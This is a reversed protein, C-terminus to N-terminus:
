NTLMVIQRPNERLINGCEQFEGFVHGLCVCCFGTLSSKGKGELGGVIEGGCGLVRAAAAMLM